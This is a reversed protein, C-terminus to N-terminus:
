KGNMQKGMEIIKEQMLRERTRFTEKQRESVTFDKELYDLAIKGNKENYTKIQQYTQEDIKICKGFSACSSLSCMVFFSIICLGVTKIKKAIMKM